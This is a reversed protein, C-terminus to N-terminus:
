GGQTRRARLAARLEMIEGRLLAIAEANDSRILAIDAACKEREAKMEAVHETRAEALMKMLDQRLTTDSEAVMRQLPVRQRLAVGALTILAVGIGGLGLSQGNVAEAVDTVGVM